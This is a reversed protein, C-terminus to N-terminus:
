YTGSPKYDKDSTILYLAISVSGVISISILFSIIVGVYGIISALVSFLCFIPITLMVSALITSRKIRKM